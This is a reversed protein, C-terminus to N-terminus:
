FPQLSNGIISMTGLMLNPPIPAVQDFNMNQQQLPELLSSMMMDFTASWIPNKRREPALVYAPAEHDQWQTSNIFPM